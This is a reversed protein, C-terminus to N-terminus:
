FGAFDGPKDSKAKGGSLRGRSVPSLGLEAILMRLQAYHAATFEEPASLFAAYLVSYSAIVAEYPKRLQGAARLDNVTRNWIKRAEGSLEPPCHPTGEEFEVDNAEVGHRDKRRTGDRKLQEPTKKNQGGRM